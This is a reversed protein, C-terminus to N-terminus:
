RSPVAILRISDQQLLSALHFRKTTGKQEVTSGLKDQSDAISASRTEQILVTLSSLVHKLANHQENATSNVALLDNAGNSLLQSLELNASETKRSTELLALRIESVDESTFLHDVDKYDM